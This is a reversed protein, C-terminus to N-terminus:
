LFFREERLHQFQANVTFLLVHNHAIVLHVRHFALNCVDVELRNIHVLRNAHFQRQVNHICFFRVRHFQLAAAYRQQHSHHINQHIRFVNRRSQFQIAFFHHCAVDQVQGVNIIRFAHLANSQFAVAIQSDSRYGTFFTLGHNLLLLRCRINEPAPQKKQIQVIPLRTLAPRKLRDRGCRTNMGVWLFAAQVENESLAPQKQCACVPVPIGREDGILVAEPPVYYEPSVNVCGLLRAAPESVPRRFLQEPTDHQIIRGHQLVAMRDATLAAEAPDHTVLLAPIGYQRVLERVLAQLQGRLGTDLSSFPEDLLLVKPAGVLARALAVRQKEGGSLADIRRNAADQLGVQVLFREAKEQAVRKNEGRMRLGFAVNQWVNLHPLLAFDQFMMAVERKQPPLPNLLTGGLVIEGGDPLLLGAVMNLLTSKGSGSAGLVATLCGADVCLDIGDAVIKDAFQKDLRRIELM